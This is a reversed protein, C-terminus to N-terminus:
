AVPQPGSSAAAKIAETKLVSAQHREAREAMDIWAAASRLCRDRVNDLAADEAQRRMAEAQSRYYEANNAM